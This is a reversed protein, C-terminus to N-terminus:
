ISFIYTSTSSLSDECCSFRIFLWAPSTINENFLASVFRSYLFLAITLNYHSVSTKIVPKYHSM